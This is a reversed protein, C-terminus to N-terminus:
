QTNQLMCEIIKPCVICEQPIPENKDRKNLYGQQHKCSSDQNQQEIPLTQPQTTTNQEEKKPTQEQQIPNIPNIRTLCYPCADYTQTPDILNTTKLTGITERGCAKNPCITRNQM